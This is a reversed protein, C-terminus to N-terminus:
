RYSMSQPAHHVYHMPQTVPAPPYYDSRRPIMPGGPAGPPPAPVTQASGAAPPAGYLHHSPPPPLPGGLHSSPPVTYSGHTPPGTPPYTPYVTTAASAATATVVSTGNATPATKYPSYTAATAAPLPYSGLFQHINIITFTFLFNMESVLHLLRVM